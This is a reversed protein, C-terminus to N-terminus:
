LAGLRTIKHAGTAFGIHKQEMYFDFSWDGGDRGIGSAKVGGFPTPLHRVNESNVWIMGAELAETFRLARTLDNTWLYGTLGYATDNALALAEAETEFPISTLVPGFIEEQAIRMDNRANTFLTPKVFYGEDGIAAGGAAITAGDQAAIDFYSTVKDFHERSILPGIETTPDLPHGVKINNVREVLKAEFDARISDQILLRSSSTCREGNISYIMFIVADLARDLDADEFVIVPNKGGLELHNRKLTDAGQKIIMSGTRSEGVFAIAKIDPHECLAKGAAEGFGNVTNLVGPPLGAEEAIEVLLRATLPSAEAPKHVVTCGAALAPAIKWTSLMFPTNWPTIVGVPGIPKRTTVNMLTPSQLLRGDRAQVVQDAFYRFNEAGRLAAKSMFKFAQGTDWCECLAIEEARAEIGEAVRILIRKRELAPMDRWAPFADAAAKAARDIDEASGEAVDCIVSKDVPSLTQFVGASGACDLGAIRNKIGGNRFRDLYGNLKTINDDLVSM